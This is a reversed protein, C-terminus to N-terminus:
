MSLLKPPEGGEIARILDPLMAEGITRGAQEGSPIVIHPMFAEEFTEIESDVSELKAKVVIFLARWRQRIDQDFQKTAAADTRFPLAWGVAYDSSERIPMPLVIKVVRKQMQFAVFIRSEEYGYTFKDAGYRILVKEIEGRSKEPAVTTKEAYKSM